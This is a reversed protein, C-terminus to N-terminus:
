SDQELLNELMALIKKPDLLVQAVQGGPFELVVQSAQGEVEQQYGQFVGNGQPELSERYEQNDMQDQYVQLLMLAQFDQNELFELGDLNEQNAM